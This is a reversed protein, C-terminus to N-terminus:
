LKQRGCEIEDNIQDSNSKIQKTLATAQLHSVKAKLEICLQEKAEIQGTCDALRTTLKAVEDRYRTNVKNTSDLKAILESMQNQFSSTATQHMELLQDRQEELQVYGSRITTLQSKLDTLILNDAQLNTMQQQLLKM